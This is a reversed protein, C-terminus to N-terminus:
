HQDVAAVPTVTGDDPDEVDNPDDPSDAPSKIAPWSGRQAQEVVSQSWAIGWLSGILTAVILPYGVERIIDSARM